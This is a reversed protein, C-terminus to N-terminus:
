PRVEECHAITRDGKTPDIVIRRVRLIKNKWKIRDDPALEDNRRLTVRYRPMASVTMGELEPGTGEAEVLSLCQGFVEWEDVPLGSTLRMDSRRALVVRHRLLGAFETM